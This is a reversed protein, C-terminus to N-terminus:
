HIIYKHQKLFFFYYMFLNKLADLVGLTGKVKYHTM